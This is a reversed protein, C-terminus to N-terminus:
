PRLHQHGAPTLWWARANGGPSTKGGVWGAEELDSLRAYAGQQTMDLLEAMETSFLIPECADRLHMMIEEDSVTPPRGM